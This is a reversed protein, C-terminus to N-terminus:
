SAIKMVPVQSPVPNGQSDQIYVNASNIRINVLQRRRWGLSNHFVFAHTSTKSCLSINGFIIYLVDYTAEAPTFTPYEEKSLLIESMASIVLRAGRHASHLKALYDEVVRPCYIELIVFLIWDFYGVKSKFNWYCWWSSGGVRYRKERREVQFFSRGL